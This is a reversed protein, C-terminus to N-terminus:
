DDDSFVKAVTKALDAHHPTTGSLDVYRASTADAYSLTVTLAPPTAAGLRDPWEILCFATDFAIDLGLEALENTSTLRYLDAHWVELPGADYTQVITFTPSPVDDRQGCSALLEQIIHRALFTKGAGVPGDLLICLGPRAHSVLLSGLRRTDDESILNLTTTM